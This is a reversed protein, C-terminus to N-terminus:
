SNPNHGFPFKRELITGMRKQALARPNNGFPSKGGFDSGLYGYLECFCTNLTCDLDPNPRLDLDTRCDNAGGSQTFNCNFLLAGPIQGAFPV